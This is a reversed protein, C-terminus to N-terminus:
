SLVEPCNSLPLKDTTHKWMYGLKRKKKKKLYGRHGTHPEVECPRFWPRVVLQALWSGRLNVNIDNKVAGRCISKKKGDPNSCSKNNLHLLGKTIPIIYCYSTRPLSRDKMKESPRNFPSKEALFPFVSPIIKKESIFRNMLKSQYWVPFLTHKVVQMTLNLTTMM